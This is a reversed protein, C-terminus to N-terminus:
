EPEVNFQTASITVTFSYDSLEAASDEVHITVDAYIIEGSDMTYPLTIDNGGADYLSVDVSVEDPNSVEVSTVKAAITGVNTIELTVVSEYCPYGDSVTITALDYDGDYDTDSLTCTTDATGALGTDDDSDYTVEASTFAVDLEGTAVSGSVNLTETWVAYTAAVVMLGMVLAVFIGAKKM